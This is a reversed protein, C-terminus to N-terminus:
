SVLTTVSALRVNKTTVFELGFDSLRPLRAYLEFIYTDAKNIKKKKKKKKDEREYVCMMIFKPQPCKIRIQIGFQFQDWFFRNPDAVFLTM